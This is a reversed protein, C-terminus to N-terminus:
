CPEAKVVFHMKAEFKYLLSSFVASYIFCILKSLAKGECIFFISKVIIM